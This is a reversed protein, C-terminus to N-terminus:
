RRPPEAAPPPDAAPPPEAAEPPLEFTKHIMEGVAVRIAALNRQEIEEKLETVTCRVKFFVHHVASIYLYSNSKKGDSKVKFVAERAPVLRPAKGLEVTGDSVHRAKKWAQPDHIAEKATEFERILAPSDVGDPLDPGGGYIYITLVIGPARYLIQTSRANESPPRVEKFTLDGITNPYTLRLKQKETQSQGPATTPAPAADPQQALLLVPILALAAAFAASRTPLNGASRTLARNM